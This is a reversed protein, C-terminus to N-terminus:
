NAAYSVGNYPFAAFRLESSEPDNDQQIGRIVLEAHTPVLQSFGWSTFRRTARYFYIRYDDIGAVLPMLIPERLLPSQERRVLWTQGRIRQNIYSVAVPPPVDFFSNNTTINLEGNLYYARGSMQQIDRMFIQGVVTLEDFHENRQLHQQTTGLAGAISIMLAFGIASVALAVLLEIITFGQETRMIM